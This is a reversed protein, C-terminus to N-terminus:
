ENKRTAREVILKGSSACAAAPTLGSIAYRCDAERFKLWSEQSEKLQAESDTGRVSELLADFAKKM